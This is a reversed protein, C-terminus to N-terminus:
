ARRPEAHGDDGPAPRARHHSGRGSGPDRRNPCRRQPRPRVRHAAPARPRHPVSEVALSSAAPFVMGMGLGSILLGAIVRSGTSAPTLGTQALAGAAVLVLAVPLCYRPPFRRLWHGAMVSVAMSAVASPLIVLGGQLPSLGTLSQLWISTYAMFGYATFM